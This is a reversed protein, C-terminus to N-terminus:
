AYKTVSVPLVILLFLLMVLLVISLVVLNIWGFVYPVKFTHPNFFKYYKKQDQRTIFVIVLTIWFVLNMASLWGLVFIFKEFGTLRDWIIDKM